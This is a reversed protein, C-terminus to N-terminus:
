RAAAWRRHRDTRQHERVGITPDSPAAVVVGGCGCPRAEDGAAYAARWDAIVAELSPLAGDAVTSPARCAHAGGGDDIWARGSWRVAVGCHRCTGPM